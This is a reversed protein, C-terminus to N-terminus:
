KDGGCGQFSPMIVRTKLYPVISKSFILFKGLIGLGWRTAKLLKKKKKLTKLLIITITYYYYNYFYYIVHVPCSKTNHM